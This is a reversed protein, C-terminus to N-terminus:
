IGLGFMFMALLEGVGNETSTMKKLDIRGKKVADLNAKLNDEMAAKKFVNMGEVVGIVIAGVVIALPGAITIVTLGIANAGFFLAVGAGGLAGATAIAGGAVGVAVGVLLGAGVAAAINVGKGSKLRGMAADAAIKVFGEPPPNATTFLSGLKTPVTGKEGNPGVWGSPDAKWAYYMDLADQAVQVRHKYAELKMWSLFKIESDTLDGPPKNIIELLYAFMFGRLEDKLAEDGAHVRRKLEAVSIGKAKAYRKLVEEHIDYTWGWDSFSTPLGLEIIDDPGLIKIPPPGSPVTTTTTTVCCIITVTVTTTTTTTPPPPPPPPPPHPLPGVITQTITADINSFAVNNDYIVNRTPGLPDRPFRSLGFFLTTAVDPLGGLSFSGDTRTYVVYRGSPGAAPTFLGAGSNNVFAGKRVELTTTGTAALSTTRLPGDLTSGLVLDGGRTRILIDGVTDGPSGMVILGGRTDHVTIGGTVSTAVLGFDLIGIRNLSNDIIIKKTSATRDMTIRAVDVRGRLEIENTPTVVLLDAVIEGAATSEIKGGGTQTLRLTGPIEIKADIFIGAGADLNLDGAGATVVVPALIRIRGTGAGGGAAADIITTGSVAILAALETNLIFSTALVSTYTTIALTATTVLPAAVVDLDTPDLFLTGGKGMPARLDAFGRFALYQKGSVEVFGGDGSMVGGRASINGLFRTIQDAWVIVRGGNGAGLADARINVDVGIYSAQANQVRPDQGRFNGGILVEGGGADGSVDLKAAGVLGVNKGTVEIRGGTQGAGKGSADLTGAVEVTGDGGASLIIEGGEGVSATQARIIGTMNIVNDLVGRAVSASLRVVGGTAEIVGTNEVAARGAGLAQTTAADTLVLSVLGDGYLDIAFKSGSALWVKGLRAVISGANAVGPAVLAALGGEAVTIGGQNIVSAGPAGPISFRMRGAMFDSNRIDITTAVLGAVDVRSNPGFVIGNRNILIIQGNAQLRGMILSPNNTTVRNLTVSSSSPQFFRTLQSAGISFNKWDIIARATTQHIETVNPNVQTITASGAAVTGGQPNAHALDSLIFPNGLVAAGLAAAIRLM